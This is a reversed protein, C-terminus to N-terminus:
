NLIIKRIIIQSEELEIKLFYVGKNLHGLNLETKKQGPSATLWTKGSLDVVTLRSIPSESAVTVENESPIPWIQLSKDNKQLFGNTDEITFCDTTDSCEEYTIIAAYTGPLPNVLFPDNAGNIATQATCDYWEYTVFPGADVWLTDTNFILTDVDQYNCDTLMRVHTHVSDYPINPTWISSTEFSYDAFCTNHEDVVVAKVKPYVQTFETNIPNSVNGLTPNNAVWTNTSRNWRIQMVGGWPGLQQNTYTLLIQGTKNEIIKASSVDEPDLAILPTKASVGGDRIAYVRANAGAQGFSFPYHTVSVLFVSDDSAVTIDNVGTGYFEDAVSVNGITNWNGSGANWKKLTYNVPPVTINTYSVALGVPEGQSTIELDSFKEAQLDVWSGNHYLLVTGGAPFAPDVFRVFLSDGTNRRLSAEVFSATTTVSSCPNASLLQGTLDYEEMSFQNGTKKLIFLESDSVEFDLGENGLVVNEWANNVRRDLRFTNGSSTRQLSYLTNTSRQVKLSGNSHNHYTLTDTVAYKWQGHVVELGCFVFAVSLLYLCYKKM